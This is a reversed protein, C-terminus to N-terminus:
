RVDKATVGAGPVAGAGPVVVSGPVVVGGPLVVVGPVGVAGIAVGAELEVGAGAVVAAVPGAVVDLGTVGVAAVGTSAPGRPIEDSLPWAKHVVV